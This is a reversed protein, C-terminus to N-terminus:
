KYISASGDVFIEVRGVVPNNKPDLDSLSSYYLTVQAEETRILLIEEHQINWHRLFIYSDVPIKQIDTPIVISRSGLNQALYAFSYADSYVPADTSHVGVWDQARMDGIDFYNNDSAFPSFPIINLNKTITGIFGIQFLFYAVIVLVTLQNPIFAPLPHKSFISIPKFLINFLEVGGVVCVPALFLLSTHYVRTMNLASAFYPLIISAVLLSSGGIAFAVFELKSNQKRITVLLKIMGTLIFIFTLYYIIRSIAHEVGTEVSSSGLAQMIIPDRTMSNFFDSYFSSVVHGGINIISQFTNGASTFMYWGISFVILLLAYRSNIGSKTEEGASQAHSFRLWSQLLKFAILSVIVIWIFLYTLGYHSVVISFMFLIILFMKSQSKNKDFLLVLSLALFLEAIPETAKTAVESSFAPM